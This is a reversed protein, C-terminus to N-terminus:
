QAVETMERYLSARWTEAQDRNMGLLALLLPINRNYPEPCLHAHVGKITKENYDFPYLRCLLPRTEMALACGSPTLFCCDGNARHALIRRRGSALIANWAPDLLAADPAPTEDPTEYVCFAAAPEGTAAEIRAADAATLFIRTGQCCTRGSAACRDCLSPGDDRM